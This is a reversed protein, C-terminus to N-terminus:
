SGSHKKAKTGWNKLTVVKSAITVRENEQSDPLVFSCRKQRLLADVLLKNFEEDEDINDNFSIDLMTLGSQRNKKVAAVLEMLTVLKCDLLANNTMILEQLMFNSSIGKFIASCLMSSLQLHRVEIRRLKCMDHSNKSSLYGQINLYDTENMAYDQREDDSLPALDPTVGDNFM